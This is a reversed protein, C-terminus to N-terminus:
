KYYWRPGDIFWPTNKYNLTIEDDKKINQLAYVDYNSGNSRLYSNPTYSHNLMNGFGNTIQMNKIGVEIFEDQQYDKAAFVGKGHIKSDKLYYKDPNVITKSFVGSIYILAVIIVLIFIILVLGISNM